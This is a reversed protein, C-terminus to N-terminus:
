DKRHAEIFAKILENSSYKNYMEERIPQFTQLDELETVTVKPLAKLDELNKSEMLVVEQAAWDAAAKMSELVINQDEPPMSDFKARNMMAAGPWTMHNTLTFYNAPEYFKETMLADLDIDIGDIVGNQLGMFVEPLPMPTPGAGVAKWFDQISPSGVIRIKKGKLDEPNTVSTDRMLVHRNGAFIYDMGMIGQKELEQLIRLAPESQRAKVAEEIDKFLFPMFWANFSEIVSSLYGGSIIAFEVAGTEVQQVMDKEPGLQSAPFIELSMRGGSRAKLEEGFKEATKHWIHTPQTIHALKFSYTKGAQPQSSAPASASPSSQAGSSSQGGGGCAALILSLILVFAVSLGFKGKM